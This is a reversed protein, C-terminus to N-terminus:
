IGGNGEKKHQWAVLAAVAMALLLIAVVDFLSLDV